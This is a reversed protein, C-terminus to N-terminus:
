RASNPPSRRRSRPIFSSRSSNPHSGGGAEFERIPRQFGRRPRQVWSPQKRTREHAGKKTRASRFRGAAHAVKRRDILMGGRWCEEYGRDELVEGYREQLENIRGAAYQGSNWRYGLGDKARRPIFHFHVHPVVQGAVEGENVLLNYGETGMVERVSRGIRPFERALRAAIGTGSGIAKTINRPFPSCIVRRWRGLTWFCWWTMPGAYSLPRFRVPSLRASICGPDASM